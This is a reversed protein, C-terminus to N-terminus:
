RWIENTSANPNESIYHLIFMKVKFYNGLQDKIEKPLEEM